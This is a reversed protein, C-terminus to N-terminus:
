SSEIYPCAQCLICLCVHATNASCVERSIQSAIRWILEPYRTQGILIPCTVGFPIMLILHIIALLYQVNINSPHKYLRGLGVVLWEM